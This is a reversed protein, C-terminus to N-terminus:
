SVQPVGLWEDARGMALQANELPTSQDMDAHEPCLGPAVADVLAAVNIGSNWDNTFNKINKEPLMGQIWTLLQQKPSPGGKKPAEDDTQFGMSIQYHLILTWILGLILKLNGDVIDAAGLIQYLIYPGWAASLHSVRTWM